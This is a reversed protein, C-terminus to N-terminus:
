ISMIRMILSHEERFDTIAQFIKATLIANMLVGIDISKELENIYEWEGNGLTMFGHSDRCYFKM